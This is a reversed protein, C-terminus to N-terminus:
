RGTGSGSNGGLIDLISQELGGAVSRLGEAPGSYVLTGDRLVGVDDALSEVQDLDHSSVFLTGGADRYESLFGRVAAVSVPDLNSFPEDLLVASPRHRFASCIGLKVRMGRSYSAIRRELVESEELIRELLRRLRSDNRPPPLDHLISVLELYRWGTLEDVLPDRGPLVGIRRQLDAGEDTVPIDGYRVTGDDPSILGAMVDILTSKGAGNRGLLCYCAGAEVRLSVDRLAAVDGFSKSVGEVRIGRDPGAGNKGSRRQGVSAGEWRADVRM